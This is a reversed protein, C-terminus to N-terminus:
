GKALAARAAQLGALACLPMGGGPHTSGSALFLGPVTRLANPPRRFAAFRDNSASGYIAGRTGPFAAALEEPSREWVLRDGADFLGSARVRALVAERLRVIEEPPRRGSAPEAPANAMVFVPEADAWGPRRHCREQACLYVTPAEPPRDHDFLDVFERGYDEPFLVTHGVRDDRRAARLIGVWGSTSPEPEVPLGHPVGRPLLDLAVHRADANAVVVDASLREGTALEVGTARGGEVVIRAVPSGYRFTAGRRTAVRELARVLAHIGGDVAFVGLGLEVHAICNLTAPARRPDSGNYTAYRRLIWALERTRVHRAIGADMTRFADIRLVDLWTRPGLALVGTLTPAAGYVFSPASAEWITRAYALFAALERAATPGLAAHVSAMSRAEDSYLDVVTGDPLVYRCAPDARLLTLEEALEAGGARFVAEFVDPLTLVSPGTDVEVGDIVAIGAKGGARPGAELVVVEAGGGALATAAALGSIGAGVVVAKM